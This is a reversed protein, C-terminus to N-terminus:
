KVALVFMSTTKLDQEVLFKEVEEFIYM